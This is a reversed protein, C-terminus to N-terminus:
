GNPSDEKRKVVNKLLMVKKKQDPKATAPTSIGGTDTSPSGTVNAIDEMVQKFSKM